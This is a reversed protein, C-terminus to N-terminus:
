QVELRFGGQLKAGPVERGQKIATRVAVKDVATEQKCDAAYGTCIADPIADCIARWAAFSMKVTVRKFEEDVIAEDDIVVAEPTGKVALKVTEGELAKLKGKEDPGITLVTRIVFEELRERTRAYQKKLATLRQIERDCADEHSACNLLFEGVKQRKAISKTLAAQLDARYLEMQEPSVTEASEVLALLDTEIEYLNPVSLRWSNTTVPTPM